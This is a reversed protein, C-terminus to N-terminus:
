ECECSTSYMNATARSIARSNAVKASPIIGKEVCNIALTTKTRSACKALERRATLKHIINRRQPSKHHSGTQTHTRTCFNERQSNIMLEAGLARLIAPFLSKRIFGKASTGCVASVFAKATLPLLFIWYFSLLFVYSCQLLAFVDFPILFIVCFSTVKSVENASCIEM